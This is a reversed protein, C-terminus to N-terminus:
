KGATSLQAPYLRVDTSELLEDDPFSTGNSIWKSVIVGPDDDVDFTISSNIKLAKLMGFCPRKIHFEAAAEVDNVQM